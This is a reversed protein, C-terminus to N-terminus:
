RSARKASSTCAYMLARSRSCGHPLSASPRSGLYSGLQDERALALTVGGGATGAGPTEDTGLAPRQGLPELHAGTADPGALGLLFLASHECSSVLGGSWRPALHAVSRVSAFRPVCRRGRRVGRFRARSAAGRVARSRADAGAGLRWDSRVCDELGPGRH